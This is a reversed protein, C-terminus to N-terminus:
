RDREPRGADKPPGKPGADDAPTEAHPAEDAYTVDPVASCAAVFVVVFVLYNM